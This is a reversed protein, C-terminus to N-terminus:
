LGFRKFIEEVDKPESYKTKIIKGALDFIQQYEKLQIENLKSKDEEGHFVM